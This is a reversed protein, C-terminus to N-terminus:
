IFLFSVYVVSKFHCQSIGVWIPIYKGKIELTENALFFKQCLLTEPQLCPLCLRQSGWIRQSKGLARHLLGIRQCLFLCETIHM